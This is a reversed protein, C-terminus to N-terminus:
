VQRSAKSPAPDGNAISVAFDQSTDAPDYKKQDLYTQGTANSISAQHSEITLIFKNSAGDNQVEVKDMAGTRIRRFLWIPLALPDAQPYLFTRWIIANRGQYEAPYVQSASIANGADSPIALAITFEDSGSMSFSNAGVDIVVGEALPEFTNGDLLTEGSGTPQIRSAGTWVFLTESQFELRAAIGTTIGVAGLADTVQQTVGNRM